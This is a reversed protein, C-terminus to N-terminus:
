PKAGTKAGFLPPKLFTMNVYVMVSNCHFDDTAVFTADPRFRVMLQVPGNGQQTANIKAWEKTDISDSLRSLGASSQPILIDKKYSRDPTRVLLTGVPLDEDTAAAQECRTEKLLRSTRKQYTWFSISQDRDVVQYYREEADNVGVINFSMPTSGDVTQNSRNVTSIVRSDDDFGVAALVHARAPASIADPLIRMAGLVGFVVFLPYIVLVVLLILILQRLGSPAAFIAELLGGVVPVKGAYRALWVMTPSPPQAPKDNPKASDTVM